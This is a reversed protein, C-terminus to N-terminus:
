RNPLSLPAPLPRDRRAGLRLEARILLAVLHTLDVAFSAGLAAAVPGIWPFLLALALAGALLRRLPPAAGVAFGLVAAMLALVEAKPSWRLADARIAWRIAAVRRAEDLHAPDARVVVLEDTSQPSLRLAHAQTHRLAPIPAIPPLHAETLWRQPLPPASPPALGPEVVVVAAAVALPGPVISVGAGIFGLLAALLAVAARRPLGRHLTSM